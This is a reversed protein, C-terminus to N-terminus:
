VKSTWLSLICGFMCQLQLKMFQLLTCSVPISLFHPLSLSPHLSFSFSLSLNRINCCLASSGCM